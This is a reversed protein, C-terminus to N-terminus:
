SIFPGVWRGPANDFAIIGILTKKTPRRTRSVLVEDPNAVLTGDDEGSASAEDLDSMELEGDFTGMEVLGVAARVVM